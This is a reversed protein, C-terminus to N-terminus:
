DVRSWGEGSGQGADEILQSTEASASPHGLQLELHFERHRESSDNTQTRSSVDRYIYKTDINVGQVREKM